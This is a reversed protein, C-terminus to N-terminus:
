NINILYINMGHWGLFWLFSFFFLIFFLLCKKYSSFNSWFLSVSEGFLSGRRLFLFSFWWWRGRCWFAWCSAFFSCCGWFSWCRLFWWWRYLFCISIVFIDLFNYECSCGWYIFIHIISITMYDIFSSAFNIIANHILCINNPSIIVIFKINNLQKFM